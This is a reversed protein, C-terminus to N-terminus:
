ISTQHPGVLKRVAGRHVRKLNLEHVIMALHLAAMVTVVLVVQLVNFVLNWRVTLPGCTGSTVARNQHGAM